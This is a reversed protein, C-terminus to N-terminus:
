KELISEDSDQFNSAGRLLYIILFTGSAISAQGFIQGFILWPLCSSLLVLHIGKYTGKLTKRVRIERALIMIKVLMLALFLIWGAEALIRANDFEIWNSFTIRMDVNLVSGLSRTGLGSGLPNWNWEKVWFQNIIRQFPPDVENAEVFRHIGSILVSRTGPMLMVAGASPIALLFLQGVKRKLERVSKGFVVILALVFAYNIYVTRSGSLALMVLLAVWQFKPVSGRRMIELSIMLSLCVSMYIAFGAASSFTGTARQIGQASYLGVGFGASYLKTYKFVTQLLAVLLNVPVSVFLINQLAKLTQSTILAGSCILGVIPIVYLYLGYIFTKLDIEGFLLFIFQYGTFLVCILPYAFNERLVSKAKTVVSFFLLLVIIARAFYVINGLYTPLFGRIIGSYIFDLAYLKYLLEIKRM